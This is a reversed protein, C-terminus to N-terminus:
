LSFFILRYKESSMKMSKKEERGKKIQAIINKSEIEWFDKNVTKKNLNSTISRFSGYTARLSM